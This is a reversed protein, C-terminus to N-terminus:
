LKYCIKAEYLTLHFYDPYLAFYTLSSEKEQVLLSADLRVRNAMWGDMWGYQTKFHGLKCTLGFSGHLDWGYPESSALYHHIRTRRRRFRKRPWDCENMRTSYNLFFTCCSFFFRLPRIWRCHSQHNFLTKSVVSNRLMICTGSVQRVSLLGLTVRIVTNGHRERYNSRRQLCKQLIGSQRPSRGRVMPFTIRVVSVCCMSAM